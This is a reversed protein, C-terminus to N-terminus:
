KGKQTAQKQTRKKRGKIEKEEGEKVTLLVTDSM